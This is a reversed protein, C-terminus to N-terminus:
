SGLAGPPAPAPESAGTRSAPSFRTGPGRVFRGPRAGTPIGDRIVPVGNVFLHAVGSALENRGWTSRDEVAELEFVALDAFYGARVYGRDELGIRDAVAASGKRVAEELTLVGEDRVYTGLIRAYTGFARPHVQRGGRAPDWGAGDTGFKMWPQQLKARIGEESMAFYIMGVNSRDRLVLEMAAEVWDEVGLWEAVEELNRGVLPIHEVQSVTSVISGESTALRCWNEWDGPPGIMDARMRARAGPDRLNTFLRDNAQSWPPFCATLSTSAATYPYMSAAMDIGRERAGEIRALIEDTREWNEVGAAKLHFIEVPVGAREGIEAAEDLAELVRYSESRLHTIYIGGYQAVVEAIEVLEDTGAYAGPPYILATAVGFAGDEMARATVARMTDLQARSPAGEGAGMAYRRVTTGGLFSGVNLSVGGAEMEELWGAFRRWEVSRRAALPGSGTAPGGTLANIPAPTTSEGMIETTVGQFLKSLASGDSLYQTDSQGNLDIFGPAIVLGTVDLVELAESPPLLGPPAVAAIRDDRIAIDAHRWPNGTGDVLRGGILLLDWPERPVLQGFVPEEAGGRAGAPAPVTPVALVGLLAAGLVPLLARVRTASFARFPM